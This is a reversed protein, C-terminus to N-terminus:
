APNAAVDEADYERWEDALDAATPLPDLDGAELWEHIEQVKSTRFGKDDLHGFVESYIVEALTTLTTEIDMTSRQQAFLRDIAVTVATTRNGYREALWDLQHATPDSLRFSTTKTM